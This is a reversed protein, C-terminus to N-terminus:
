RARLREKVKHMQRELKHAASDIAKYMDDSTDHAALDYHAGRVNLEVTNRHGEVSFICHVDVSSPVFKELKVLHGSMREELSKSSHTHRYTYTVNM